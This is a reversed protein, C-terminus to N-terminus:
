PVADRLHQGVQGPADRFPLRSPDFLPPDETGPQLPQDSLPFLAVSPDFGLNLPDDFREPGLANRRVQSCDVPERCCLGCRLLLDGLVGSGDRLPPTEDRRSALKKSFVAKSLFPQRELSVAKSLTNRLLESLRVHGELHPESEPLSLKDVLKLLPKPVADAVAKQSTVADRLEASQNMRNVKRVM